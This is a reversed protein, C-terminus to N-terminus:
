RFRFIKLPGDCCAEVVAVFLFLAWFQVFHPSVQSSLSCKEAMVGAAMARRVQEHMYDIVVSVTGCFM